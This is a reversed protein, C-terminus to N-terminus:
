LKNARFPINEGQIRKSIRLFAQNGKSDYPIKEGNVSDYIEDSEPVVGLFRATITDIYEDVNIKKHVRKNFRNIVLRIDKIGSNRMIQSAYSAARVSISDPTSVIICCDAVAGALKFGSELGAPSDLIIYDFDKSLAEMMKRFADETYCESFDIPAPLLYLEKSAEIIAKRYDCNGKIIDGWNYVTKEAVGLLIDLSRVGIDMDVLLVRKDHVSMMRGIGCCFTSKGVGGKASAVTIIKMM